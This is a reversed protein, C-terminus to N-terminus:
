RSQGLGVLGSRRRKTSTKRIAEPLLHGLVPELPEGEAGVVLSKLLFGKPTATGVAGFSWNGADRGVVETGRAGCATWANVLAGHLSDLFRVRVYEGRPALLKVRM